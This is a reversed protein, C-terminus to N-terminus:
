RWKWFIKRIYEFFIFLLSEIQKHYEMCHNKQVKITKILTKWYHTYIIKKKLQNLHNWCSNIFVLQYISILLCYWWRFRWWIESANRFLKSQLKKESNLQISEFMKPICNQLESFIRFNKSYKIIKGFKQIAKRIKESSSLKM